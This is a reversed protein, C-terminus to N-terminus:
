GEHQVGLAPHHQADFFRRVETDFAEVTIGHWRRLLFDAQPYVPKECWLTGDNDFAANREAPRAFSPGPTTVSRAFELIATKAAGPRWSPLLDSDAV